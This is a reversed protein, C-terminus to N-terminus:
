VRSVFGFNCVGYSHLYSVVLDGNSDARAKLKTKSDVECEGAVAFQQVFGSVGNNTQMSHSFEGHVVLSDNVKSRATVTVNPCLTNTQSDQEGKTKDGVTNVMCHEAGAVVVVRHKRLYNLGALLYGSNLGFPVTNVRGNMGVYVRANTNVDHIYSYNVSATKPYRATADCLDMDEVGVSVVANKYSTRLHVRNNLSWTDATLLKTNGMVLDFSMDKHEGLAVNLKNNSLSGGDKPEQVSAFELRDSWKGYVKLSPQFCHTKM